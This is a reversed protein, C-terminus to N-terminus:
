NSLIEDLKKGCSPCYSPKGLHYTTGKDSYETWGHLSLYINLNKHYCVDELTCKEETSYKKPSDTVPEIKQMEDLDASTMVMINEWIEDEIVFKTGIDGNRNIEGKGIRVIEWVTNGEDYFKDGVKYKPQGETVNCDCLKKNNESAKEKSQEKIESDKDCQEKGEYEEILVNLLGEITFDKILM